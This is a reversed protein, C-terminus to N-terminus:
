DVAAPQEVDPFCRDLAKILVPSLALAIVVSAVFILTPKRSQPMEFQLEM